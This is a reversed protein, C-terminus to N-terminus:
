KSLALIDKPNIIDESFPTFVLHIMAKGIEDSNVVSNPSLAKMLPFIWKLSGILVKYLTSSPAVGKVPVIMGPRFSYSRSFGLKRLDNETKGKVRAWMSDGSETADTGRGSVYMYNMQPNLKILERALTLTFDYTLKTYKAEDMGAASVGMAAFCADYGELQDAVSSYDSFDSHILEELKDHTIGCTRRSISLVKGIRSDELCELLIAKGVMGTAGTVIVKKM